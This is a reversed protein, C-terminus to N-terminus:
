GLLPYNTGDISDNPHGSFKLNARRAAKKIDPIFELYILDLTRIVDFLRQESLAYCDHTDHLIVADGGKENETIAFSFLNMKSNLRMLYELFQYQAVLEGSPAKFVVSEFLVDNGPLDIAYLKYTVRPPLKRIVLLEDTEIRQTVLSPQASYAKGGMVNLWQEIKDICRSM